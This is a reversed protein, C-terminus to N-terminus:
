KVYLLRRTLRLALFGSLSLQVLPSLGIGLVTPMMESYSWKSLVYVARYEVFAAVAFGAAVFGLTRRATIAKVWLLDRVGASISLYIGAILFSDVISAFFVMPVYRYAPLGHDDYLYASHLTEWVFNLLFSFILLGLIVIFLESYAKKNM